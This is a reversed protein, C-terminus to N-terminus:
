GTRHDRLRRGPKAVGGNRRKAAEVSAKLTAMLDDVSASSGTTEPDEGRPRAQKSRLLELLEERYQDAHKDPVWETALAGILQQAMQLERDSLAIAPLRAVDEVKRVEDGFYLTELGLAHELPRIAVLHPKTRLVFRGIGVMGSTQMARLLLLYSKDGGTDRTPAVFYSKEFFVPDIEALDVFEEIDITRSREPAVAQLEDESIPVVDRNPLEYGRIVDATDVPAPAPQAASPYTFPRAIESASEEAIEVADAPMFAPAEDERTVREYRIRRGSQRDYLHFRVDKPETAPYLRVPISVLGFSISGTWVAQSM